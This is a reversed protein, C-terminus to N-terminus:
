IAQRCYLIQALRNCILLVSKFFPHSSHKRRCLTYPQRVIATRPMIGPIALPAGLYEGLVSNNNGDRPSGMPMFPWGQMISSATGSSWMSSVTSLM